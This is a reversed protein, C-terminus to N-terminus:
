SDSSRSQSVLKWAGLMNSQDTYTGQRGDELEIAVHGGRKLASTITAGAFTDGVTYPFIPGNQPISEPFENM